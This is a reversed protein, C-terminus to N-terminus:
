SIVGFRDIMEGLVRHFQLADAGKLNLGFGGQPTNIQFNLHQRGTGLNVFEASLTRADSFSSEATVRRVPEPPRVPQEREVHVTM